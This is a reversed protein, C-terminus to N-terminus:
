GGACNMVVWFDPPSQKPPGPASPRGRVVESMKGSVDDCCFEENKAESPWPRGGRRGGALGRSTNLNGLEKHDQVNVFRHSRHAGAIERRSVRALPSTRLPSRGRGSGAQVRPAHQWKIKSPLMFACRPGPRGTGRLLTGKPKQLAGPKRLPPSCGRTPRNKEQSIPFIVYITIYEYLM